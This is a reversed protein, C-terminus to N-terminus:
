NPEKDKQEKLLICIILLFLIYMNKNLFTIFNNVYMAWGEEGLEM